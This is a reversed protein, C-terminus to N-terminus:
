FSSPPPLRPHKDYALYLQASNTKEQVPFLPSLLVYQQFFLPYTRKVNDPSVFIMLAPQAATPALWTYVEYM